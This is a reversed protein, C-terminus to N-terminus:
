TRVKGWETAGTRNTKSAILVNGQVSNTIAKMVMLVGTLRELESHTTNRAVLQMYAQLCHKPWADQDCTFVTRNGTPGVTARRAVAVFHLIDHGMTRCMRHQIQLSKAPSAASKYKFTNYFYRSITDLLPDTVLLSQLLRDSPELPTFLTANEFVQLGAFCVEAVDDSCIDSWAGYFKQSQQNIYDSITLINHEQEGPRVDKSSALSNMELSEHNGALPKKHEMSSVLLPMSVKLDTMNTELAIAPVEKTRFSEHHNSTVIHTVTAEHAGTHVTMNGDGGGNAEMSAIGHDDSVTTSLRETGIGNVTVDADAVLKAGVKNSGGLNTFNLWPTAKPSPVQDRSHLRSTFQGLAQHQLNTPPGIPTNAVELYIAFLVTMLCLYVALRLLKQM